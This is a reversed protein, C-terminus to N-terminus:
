TEISNAGKLGERDQGSSGGGSDRLGGDCMLFMVIWGSLLVIATFLASYSSFAQFRDM